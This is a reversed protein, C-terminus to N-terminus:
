ETLPRSRYYGVDQVQLQSDVYVNILDCSGFLEPELVRYGYGVPLPDAAIVLCDWVFKELWDNATEERGLEALQSQLYGQTAESLV